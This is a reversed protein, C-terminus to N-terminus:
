QGRKKRYIRYINKFIKRFFRKFVVTRKLRRMIEEMGFKNINGAGKKDFIDLENFRKESIFEYDYQKLFAVYILDRKFVPPDCCNKIELYLVKYNCLIALKLFFDKSYFYRCHFKWYNLTPITHLMIGNKICMNHTNKFVQYQNDIHEITGFDTILHFRDLLKEPVPLCLDLLLSGYMGNWDISIHEMVKKEEIYYRKTPIDNMTRTNMAGLECIKIDEWQLGVEKIIKEQFDIINKTLGM